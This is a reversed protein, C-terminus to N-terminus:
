WKRNPDPKWVPNKRDRSFLRRILPSMLTLFAGCVAGAIFWAARSNTADM